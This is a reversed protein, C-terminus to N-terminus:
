QHTWVGLTGVQRPSCWCDAEDGHQRVYSEPAPEAAEIAALKAAQEPTFDETM